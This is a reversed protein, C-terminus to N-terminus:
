HLIERIWGPRGWREGWWVEASCRYLSQYNVSLEKRREFEKKGKEAELTDRLFTVSQSSKSLLPELVAMISVSTASYLVACCADPWLRFVCSIVLFYTKFVSSDNLIQAFPAILDQKNQFSTNTVFCNIFSKICSIFKEVLRLGFPSYHSLPLSHSLFLFYKTGTNIHKLSSFCKTRNWAPEIRFIVGM